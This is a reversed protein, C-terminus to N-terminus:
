GGGGAGLGLGWEGSKAENADAIWDEIRCVAVLKTTGHEGALLKYVTTVALPRVENVRASTRSSTPKVLSPLITKRQNSDKAKASIQTEAIPTALLTFASGDPGDVLWSRNQQMEYTAKMHTRHSIIRPAPTNTVAHVHLEVQVGNDTQRLYRGRM